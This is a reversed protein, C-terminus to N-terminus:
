CALHDQVKRAVQTRCGATSEMLGEIERATQRALGADTLSKLNIEVNLKAAACAAEALIASVGVDTILNPNAIDALGVSVDAVRACQRMIDLPVKMAETIAHQVAEARAAKAEPTKRPMRYAASVAEYAEVDADMLSLLRERCLALERLDAEVEGQVSAFKENGATFNAAMEGMAAALAGALASVSGGGPAPKRAAADCVYKELAAHLYSM